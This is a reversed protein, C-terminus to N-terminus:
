LKNKTTNLKFCEITFNIIVKCISHNYHIFKQEELKGVAIEVNRLEIPENRVGTIIIGDCTIENTVINYNVFVDPYISIKRSYFVKVRVLTEPLFFIICLFIGKETINDFTSPLIIINRIAIPSKMCNKSLDELLSLKLLGDLFYIWDNKWKVCGQIINENVKYNTINKFNDGLNYGNDEFVSYIEEKMAYELCHEVTTDLQLTKKPLVDLDNDQMLYQIQGSCITKDNCNFEFLGSGRQVM